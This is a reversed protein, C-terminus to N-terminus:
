DGRLARARRAEGSEGGDGGGRLEGRPQPGGGSPKARAGVETAPDGTDQAHVTEGDGDGRRERPPPRRRRQGADRGSGTVGGTTLPSRRGAILIGTLDSS